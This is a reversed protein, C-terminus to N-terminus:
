ADRDGYAIEYVSTDDAMGHRAAAQKILGEYRGLDATRYIIVIACRSDLRFGSAAHLSLLLRPRAVDDTRSANAVQTNFATIAHQREKPAAGNYLNTARGMDLYDLLNIVDDRTAMLDTFFAVSKHTNLITKIRECHRDRLNKFQDQMDIFEM